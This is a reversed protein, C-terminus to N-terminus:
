LLLEFLKKLGQKVAPQNEIFITLLGGYNYYLAILNKGTESKAFVEDRVYRLTKLQPNGKGLVATFPCGGNNGDDKGDYHLITGMEGSAFVDQKSAGWVGHLRTSTANKMTTWKQGDYHVITGYDGVAFVDNAASGWVDRLTDTTGSEMPTWRSGDYHIITGGEGVIFIDNEATGWVDHLRDVTGINVMNWINGDFHIVTGAGIGGTGSPGGVAFVSDESQGWVAQLTPTNPPSSMKNWVEGDYHLITGNEGVIFIDTESIGWVDRLRQTSSAQTKWTNGDYHLITGTGTASKDAAAYVNNDSTGWVGYINVSIGSNMPSWSNGDYHIIAGYDGVAFVDSESTGWIARLQSVTPIPSQLEWGAHAASGGLLVLLIIAIRVMVANFPVKLSM